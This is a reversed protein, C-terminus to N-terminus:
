FMKSFSRTVFEISAQRMADERFRSIYGSIMIITKLHCVIMVVLNILISIRVLYSSIKRDIDHHFFQRSALGECWYSSLSSWNCLRSNNM